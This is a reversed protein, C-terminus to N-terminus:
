HFIPKGWLETPLSDAQWTSFGPETGPNPLDGPSLFPLGGWYEQRSFGMSLPAQHAIIWPTAFALCSKAVLGGGIFFCSSYTCSLVEFYIQWMTSSFLPYSLFFISFPLFVYFILFHVHSFYLLFYIYVHFHFDSLWTQSKAVGHVVSDLPIRWAVISSHTAKGEGASRGSGPISGPDEANCISEKGVSSGPFCMYLGSFSSIFLFSVFDPAFVLLSLYLLWASIYISLSTWSTLIWVSGVHTWQSHSQVNWLSNIKVM